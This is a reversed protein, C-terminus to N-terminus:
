EMPVYVDFLRRGGTDAMKPFEPVWGSVPPHVFGPTKATGRTRHM